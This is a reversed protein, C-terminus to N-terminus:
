SSVYHILSDVLSRRREEKVVVRVMAKVMQPDTAHSPPLTVSGVDHFGLGSFLIYGLPGAVATLVGGVRKAEDVAAQVLDSAYGHGQYSAFHDKRAQQLLSVYAQTRSDVLSTSVERPKRKDDDGAASLDWVAVSVINAPQGKAALDVVQVDWDKNSPDMHELLLAVIEQAYADDQGTKDPVFNTWLRENNIAALILMVVPTIDAKTAARTKTPKMTPIRISTTVLDLIYTHLSFLPHSGGM